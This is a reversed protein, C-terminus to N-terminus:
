LDLTMLKISRYIIPFSLSIEGESTMGWPELHALKSAAAETSAVSSDLILPCILSFANDYPHTLEDLM